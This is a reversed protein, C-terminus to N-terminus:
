LGHRPKRPVVLGPTSVGHDVGYDVGHDVGPLLDGFLLEVGADRVHHWSPGADARNRTQM